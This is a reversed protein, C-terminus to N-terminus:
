QKKDPCCLCIRMISFIIRQLHSPTLPPPRLCKPSNDPGLRTALTVPQFARVVRGRLDDGINSCSPRAPAPIDGLRASPQRRSRTVGGLLNNPALPRRVPGSPRM